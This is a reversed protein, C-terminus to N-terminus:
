LISKVLHVGTAKMALPTKVTVRAHNSSAVEANQSYQLIVVTKTFDTVKAINM